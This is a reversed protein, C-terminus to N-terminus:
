MDLQWGGDKTRSYWVSDDTKGDTIYKRDYQGDMDDDIYTTYGVNTWRSEVIGKGDMYYHDRTNGYNYTLSSDKEEKGDLEPNTSTYRSVTVEQIAKGAKLTTTYVDKRTLEAEPVHGFTYTHHEYEISQPNQIGLCKIKGNSGNLLNNLTALEIPDSVFKDVDDNIFNFIAQKQEKSMYDQKEVYARVHELHVGVKLDQKGNFSGILFDKGSM